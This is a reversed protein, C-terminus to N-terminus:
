RGYYSTPGTRDAPFYMGLGAGVSIKPESVMRLNNASLFGFTVESSEIGASLLKLQREGRLLKKEWIIVTDVFQKPDVWFCEPSILLYVLLMVAVKSQSRLSVARIPLM